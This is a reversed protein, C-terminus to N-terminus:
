FWSFPHSKCHGDATYLLKVLTKACADVLRATSLLCERTSRIQVDTFHLGTPIELLMDVVGESVCWGSLRLQGGFRGRLGTGAGLVAGKDVRLLSGSLMLNDLSPLRTMINQIRSLVITNPSTTLSTASPLLRWYPPVRFPQTVGYALSAREVNAFWPTYEFFREPVSDLEGVSFFLERVYHAPSEKPVPFTEFWRVMDRSTFLITHFLHRRCPSVWSKSVLACSQLFRSKFAPDTVLHDLIEDIIDQPIRPIIAVKTEVSTPLKVGSTKSDMRLPPRPRSSLRKKNPARAAMM